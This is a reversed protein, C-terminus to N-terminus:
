ERRGVSVMNVRQLVDLDPSQEEEDGKLFLGTLDFRCLVSFWTVGCTATVDGNIEEM